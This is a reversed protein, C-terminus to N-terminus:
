QRGFAEAVDKASETDITCAGYYNLEGCDTSPVRCLNHFWAGCRFCKHQMSTAKHFRASLIEADRRVQDLNRTTSGSTAAGERVEQRLVVYM